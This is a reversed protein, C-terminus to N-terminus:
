QLFSLILNTIACIIGWFFKFLFKIGALIAEIM